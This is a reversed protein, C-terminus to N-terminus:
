VIMFILNDLYCCYYCYNFLLSIKMYDCCYYCYCYCYYCYYYYCYYCYYGISNIGVLVIEEDVGTMIMLINIDFLIMDVYVVYIEENNM